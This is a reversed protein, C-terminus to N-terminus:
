YPSFAWRGPTLLIIFMSTIALHHTKETYNNIMKTDVRRTQTNSTIKSMIM